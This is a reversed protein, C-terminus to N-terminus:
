PGGGRRRGTKAGPGPPGLGRSSLSREVIGMGVRLEQSLAADEQGKRVGTLTLNFSAYATLTLLSLLVLALLLELLTFGAAGKNKLVRAM